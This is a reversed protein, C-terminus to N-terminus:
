KPGLKPDDLLAPDPVDGASVQGNTGIGTPFLDSAAAGITVQAVTTTASGYANTIILYYPGASAFTPSANSLDLNTQTLLLGGNQFWEYTLPQTGTVLPNLTLLQGYGVLSNTAPEQTIVPPFAGGATFAMQNSKRAIDSVRVELISGILGEGNGPNSSTNRASGGIGLAPESAGEPAGSLPRIGNPASLDNTYQALVDASTRSPDLLTWYLTLVNTPDGNTPSQGTFTVAVHYWTNTKAADPGSTPLAPKFDNDTSGALLDWEETGQEIRWQWGRVGIAGNNDGSLIEADITSLAANLNIVAEFTFAGTTPNCFQSVNPFDGGYSSGNYGTLLHQGTTGTYCNALGPYGPGASGLSTNTYPFTGPHPEGINELQIPTASDVTFNTASDIAYLGNSDNLHWLHMTDTDQTYPIALGAWTAPVAALALILAVLWRIRAYLPFLTKKM